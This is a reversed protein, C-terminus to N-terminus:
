VLAFIEFRNTGHQPSPISCKHGGLMNFVIEVL